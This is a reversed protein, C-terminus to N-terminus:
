LRCCGPGCPPLNSECSVPLAGSSNVKPAGPVSFVKELKLSHCEPCEVTEDGLVLAEFPHDCKKCVYEYMPM